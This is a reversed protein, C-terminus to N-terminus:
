IYYLLILSISVQGVLNVENATIRGWRFLFVLILNYSQRGHFLIYSLSDKVFTIGLFMLIFLFVASWANSKPQFLGPSFVSGALGPFTRCDELM